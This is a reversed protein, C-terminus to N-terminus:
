CVESDKFIHNLFDDLVNKIAGSYTFVKVGAASFREQASAGIAGAIVHTVKHKLLEDVAMCGDSDVPVTNPVISTATIVKKKIDVDVLFFYECQGFQECVNAHFASEDEVAIGIKM